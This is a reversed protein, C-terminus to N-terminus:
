KPIIQYILEHLPKIQPLPTAFGCSDNLQQLKRTIETPTFGPFRHRQFAPNYKSEPKFSKLKKSLRRTEGRLRAKLRRAPDPAPRNDLAAAIEALKEAILECALPGDQSALYGAMLQRREKGGAAGLEGSLIKNILGELEAFSFAQHSLHNPLRYFGDDLIEDTVARYSIAPEELM